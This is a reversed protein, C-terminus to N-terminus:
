VIQHGDISRFTRFFCLLLFFITVLTCVYINLLFIPIFHLDIYNFPTPYCWNWDLTDTLWLITEFNYLLANLRDLDSYKM